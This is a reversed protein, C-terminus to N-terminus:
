TVVQVLQILVDFRRAKSVTGGQHEIGLITGAPFTTAGPAFMTEMFNTGGDEHYGLGVFGLFNIAGSSSTPAVSAGEISSIGLDGAQLAIDLRTGIISSKPITVTGTRSNVGNHNTYTVTVVVNAASGIAQTVEIQPNSTWQPLAYASGAAFTNTIINLTGMRVESVIRSYAAEGQFSTYRILYGNYGVPVTYTIARKWQGAVLAGISLSYVFSVMKPLAGGGPIAFSVPIPVQNNTDIICDVHLRNEGDLENGVKAVKGDTPDTILSKAQTQLRYIAGDLIVGVANGSADYLAQPWANSGAGKTGQNAKVVDSNTLARIQTPDKAAGGHMIQVDLAQHDAGEATGTIDAATTTGKAGGRVISKQDGNSQRTYINDLDTKISALNGDEELALGHGAALMTQVMLRLNDESDTFVGIINGAEDSLALHGGQAQVISFPM